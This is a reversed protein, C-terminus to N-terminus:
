FINWVKNKFIPPLRYNKSYGTYYVSTKSKTYYKIDALKMACIIFAQAIM